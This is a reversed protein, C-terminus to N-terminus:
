LDEGLPIDILLSVMNGPYRILKGALELEILAINILSPGVGIEQILDDVSVREPSLNELIVKRIRALENEDPHLPMVIDQEDSFIDKIINHRGDELVDLIDTTQSVLIAGEKLLGNPGISRDDSPFGPVAFVERGQQRAMEATILSGSKEQAEIVVVGHSLGSIIRNRRPFNGPHPKTGLAFDSIIAGRTLLEDYLGKNESPYVVDVGTGLVALTGGKGNQVCLAGEHAAADIGRAMGSVVTYDESAMDYAIRRALNKGNLSAHRAGVIGISKKCLLDKKGLVTIVPPADEIKSLSKPYAEECLALIDGGLSNVESLESQAEQRSCLRIPRGKGGRHAYEDIHKLAEAPTKYFSLLNRFTIPGVNESRALQIWEIKEEHTLDKIKM